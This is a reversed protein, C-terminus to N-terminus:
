GNVQHCLSSTAPDFFVAHSSDMVIPSSSAPGGSVIPLQCTYLVSKGTISSTENINVTAYGVVQGIQVSQSNVARVAPIFTPIAIGLLVSVVVITGTLMLRNKVSM